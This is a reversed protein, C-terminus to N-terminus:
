VRWPDGGRSPIKLTTGHERWFIGALVPPPHVRWAVELAFEHDPYSTQIILAALIVVLVNGVIALQM